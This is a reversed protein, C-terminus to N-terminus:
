LLLKRCHGNQQLARCSETCAPQQALASKCVRSNVQESCLHHCLQAPWTSTLPTSPSSRLSASPAMVMLYVLSAGHSRLAHM